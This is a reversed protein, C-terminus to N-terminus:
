ELARAPDANLHWGWINFHPEISMYSFSAPAPQPHAFATALVPLSDAIEREFNPVTHCGLGYDKWLHPVHLAILRQHLDENATHIGSETVCWEVDFPTEGIAPDMEGDATRLQLNVGRLNAALDTPNHAHWRIEQTARPGYIADPPAGDAVSSASIAAGDATPNSDVAGSLTSAAGFLEPHHAAFMVAGYGGMSEAM